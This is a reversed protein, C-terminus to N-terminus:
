RVTTAREQTLLLAGAVSWAFCFPLVLLVRATQENVFALMVVGAAILAVSWTPLIHSRYVVLAVLLLGLALATFGPVVFGPMADESPGPFLVAFVAGAALTAAGAVLLGCGVVGARGLGGRRRLLLGLGLVSVVLLAGGLDVAATVSTTTDRMPRVDCEDGICGTPQLNQLYAAVALAVGATLASVGSLRRLLEDSMGCMM